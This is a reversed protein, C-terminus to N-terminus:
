AGSAIGDGEASAARAEEFLKAHQETTVAEAAFAAFAAVDTEDTLRADIAAAARACSRALDEARDREQKVADSKLKARLTAKFAVCLDPLVARVAQLGLPSKM